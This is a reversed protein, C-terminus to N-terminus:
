FTSELGVYFARGRKAFGWVDSYDKDFLNTVRGTLTVRDSLAYRAAVDVTTYDPLQVVPFTGFSQTDYNGAVYRLDANVSGRGNLFAQRASLLLEHEPRRVEVSGNANSANLYTYALRLDLSDTAELIASIEVGERKSKEARNRYTSYGLAGDFYWEIEDTLEESFLTVDVIGRGQLFPVEVGFDISRNKEPTLNPNGFTGFSSGFLEFFSPDVSGEGASGHLRVGNALTYAGSINWTTDDEFTSNNDRRLGAQLNLGNALSGRYEVAYSDRDPRYGANTNSRKRTHEAIVNVIHDADELMAGDLAYSLLYRGTKRDAQSTAGGGPTSEFDSNEFTLRHKMRGGMMLYEAYVSGLRESRDVTGTPDDTVSQQVTTAAYNQTDTDYDEDSHRFTFGLKLDDTLLYDGTLNITKRRIGDKEGGSGSFDYGEDDLYSLGLALGGRQTRTSYRASVSNADGGEIKGFVEQGIDGKKTIISVVGSSASSGYFASQPGRLVEIREINATELGSFFYEDNGAAAPVGDILILTNNGEGGRIRVQTFSDGAGSVSVGPVARLADQVTLIGREEIEAATIVSASRGYESEAIPTLGGSVIIDDLYVIDEALAPHAVLLAFASTARLLTTKM